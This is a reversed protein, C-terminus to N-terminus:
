HPLGHVGVSSPPRPVGAAVAGGLLILPGPYLRVVDQLGELVEEEPRDPTETLALVDVKHRLALAM